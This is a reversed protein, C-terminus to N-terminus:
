RSKRQILWCQAACADPCGPAGQGGCRTQLVSAGADVRQLLLGKCQASEKQMYQRQQQGAASVQRVVLALLDAGHEPTANHGVV